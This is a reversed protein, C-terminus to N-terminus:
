DVLLTKCNNFHYREMNRSSSLGCHPCTKIVANEKLLHHKGEKIRKEQLKRQYDSDLFHHTGNEIRKYVPNNGNVLNNQGNAIQKLANNRQIESNLFPHTGDDKRQKQVKKSLESIEQPTLNMKGRIFWAAGYDGRTYHIDYHEQISVCLLNNISNNERNGDIHHIQYSRGDKDTPIPGVHNEYIKRYKDTGCYICMAPAGKL